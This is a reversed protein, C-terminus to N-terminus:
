VKVLDVLIFPMECATEVSLTTTLEDAAQSHCPLRLLLLWSLSSLIRLEHELLAFLEHATLTHTRRHHTLASSHDLAAALLIGIGSAESV